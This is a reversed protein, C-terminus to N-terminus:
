TLPKPPPPYVQGPIDSNRQMQLAYLGLQHWLRTATSIRIDKLSSFKVSLMSPTMQWIRDLDRTCQFYIPKKLKWSTKTIDWSGTCRSIFSFVIEQEHLNHWHVSNKEYSLIQSLYPCFLASPSTNRFGRFILSNSKLFLFEWAQGLFIWVRFIMM